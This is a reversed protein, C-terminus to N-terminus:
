AIKSHRENCRCVASETTLAIIRLNATLARLGCLEVANVLILLEIRLLKRFLSGRCSVTAVSALLSQGIGKFSVKGILRNEQL